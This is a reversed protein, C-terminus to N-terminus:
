ESVPDRNAWCPCVNSTPKGCYGCHSGFCEGTQINMRCGSHDVTKPLYPNIGMTLDTLLEMETPERM